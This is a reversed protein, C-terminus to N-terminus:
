SRMRVAVLWFYPFEFSGRYNQSTGGRSVPYSVGGKEAILALIAAIALLAPDLSKLSRSLSLALATM